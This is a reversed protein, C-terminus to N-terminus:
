SVGRRKRSAREIEGGLERLASVVSVYKEDPAIATALETLKVEIANSSKVLERALPLLKMLILALMWGSDAEGAAVKAEILERIADESRAVSRAFENDRSM